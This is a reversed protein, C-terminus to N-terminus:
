DFIPVSIEREYISLPSLQPGAVNLLEKKEKGYYPLYIESDQRFVKETNIQNSKGYQMEPFPQIPNFIDFIYKPWKQSLPSMEEPMLSTVTKTQIDRMSSIKQENTKAEPSKKENVLQTSKRKENLNELLEPKAIYTSPDVDYKDKDTGLSEMISNGGNSKYVFEVVVSESKPDKEDTSVVLPKIQKTYLVSTENRPLTSTVTSNTSGSPFSYSITIMASCM